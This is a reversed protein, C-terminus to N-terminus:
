GAGAESSGVASGWGWTHRQTQRDIQITNKLIGHAVSFWEHYFVSHICLYYEEQTQLNTIVLLLVAIAAASWLM